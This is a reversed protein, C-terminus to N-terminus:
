EHYYNNKYNYYSSQSIGYEKMIIKRHRTDEQIALISDSDLKRASSPFTGRAISDGVNEKQTGLELHTLEFCAKNDCKHRVVLGKPIPGYAAEYAARHVSKWKNNKGDWVCGYGMGTRAWPWEVCDEKSEM